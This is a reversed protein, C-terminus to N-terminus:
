IQEEHFIEKQPILAPDTPLTLHVTSGRNMTSEVWMDGGHQRIINKAIYLGLGTGEVAIKLANEGRFFKKFMKDMSEPPVGIGTDHVTVELYPKDPVRSIKVTVEGNEINYKVANDLVSAFAIGLKAADATVKMAATPKDFYITVKYQRAVLNAQRLAEEIFDALNVETFNYGFQGEEIKAIDLLDNVIKLLRNISGLAASVLDTQEKNLSEKQLGEMAWIAGTLPTRLQHSAITIFESKAKLLTRERTRNEVLKIFGTVGGKDDTIRNTTVRLELQPNEFAIDVVQPYAGLESRRIISPAIAPFLITLLTKFKGFTGGRVKLTFREGLVEAKGVDFIQEAARNFLFVKFNTDYAIVGEKLNDLIGDMRNGPIPTSSQLERYLVFAAAVLLLGTNAIKWFSPLLFIGLAIAILLLLGILWNFNEAFSKM